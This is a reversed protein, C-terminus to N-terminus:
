SATAGTLEFRTFSSTHEHHRDDKALDSRCALLLSEVINYHGLLINKSPLVSRFQAMSLNDLFLDDNNLCNPPLLLVDYENAHVRAARLLDQGTLLGSVTVSEGWFRNPIMKLAVSLGTEQQIWPLIDRSLFGYASAGTFMMIRHTSSMGKLQKKRRNFNTILDRCMGIGNEFQQFEEYSSHPPFQEGAITYFEDGPWVFRTGHQRFLTKQHKEVIKVIEQAEYPAYSRLNPLHERFKTLGVPVVALSEVSPFLEALETITRELYAGDNIKPCLVAQTHITIGSDGLYKLRPIIPALRENRLM